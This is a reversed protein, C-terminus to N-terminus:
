VLLRLTKREVLLTSSFSTSIFASRWCRLVSLRTDTVEIVGISIRLIGVIPPSGSIACYRCTNGPTIEVPSWPPCTTIRPPVGICVFNKNSPIVM